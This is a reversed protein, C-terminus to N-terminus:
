SERLEHVRRIRSDQDVYFIGGTRRRIDADKTQRTAEAEEMQQRDAELGAHELEVQRARIQPGAPGPNAPWMTGAMARAEAGMYQGAAYDGARQLNERHGVPAPTTNLRAPQSWGPIGGFTVRQDGNVQPLASKVVRLDPRQAPALSGGRQPQRRAAREQATRREDQRRKLEEAVLQVSLEDPPDEQKAEERMKALKEDSLVSLMDRFEIRHMEARAAAYFRGVARIQRELHERVEPRHGAASQRLFAETAPWGSAKGALLRRLWPSHQIGLEVALNVPPAIVLSAFVIAGQASKEASTLGEAAPPSTPAPSQGQSAPRPKPKPTPARKRAKQGAAYVLGRRTPRWVLGLGELRDVHYRAARSSMGLEAAIDSTSIGEGAERILQLVEDM